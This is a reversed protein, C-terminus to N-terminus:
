WRVMTAPKASSSGRRTEQKNGRRTRGSRIREKKLARRIEPRRSNGAQLDEAFGYTTPGPSVSFRRRPRSSRVCANLEMPFLLRAWPGASQEDQPAPAGGRSPVAGHARAGPTAFGVADMSAAVTLIGYATIPPRAATTQGYQDSCDLAPRCDCGRRTRGSLRLHFFRLSVM